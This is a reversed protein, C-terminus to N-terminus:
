EQSLRYVSGNCHEIRYGLKRARDQLSKHFGGDGTFEIYLVQYEDRSFDTTVIDDRDQLERLFARRDDISSEDTCNSDM